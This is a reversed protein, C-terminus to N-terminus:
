RGSKGPGGGWTFPPPVHKPKPGVVMIDVSCDPDVRYEAEDGSALSVTYVGPVAFRRTKLNYKWIEGDTYRFAAGTNSNGAPMVLDSVEVPPVAPDATFFIKVVPAAALDDGDLPAGAEDFLRAKLPVTRAGKRLRLTDGHVPPLFGECSVAPVPPLALSVTARIGLNTVTNPFWTATSFQYSYSHMAAPLPDVPDDVGLWVAPQDTTQSLGARFSTDFQLGAATLDVDYWNPDLYNIVVPVSHVAALNKDWVHVLFVHPGPAQDSLYFSLKELAYPDTPPLTFEVVSAVDPLYAESGEFTGDDYSLVDAFAATPLFALIAALLVTGVRKM